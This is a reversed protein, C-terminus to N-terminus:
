RKEPPNCWVCPTLRAYPEASLEAYTIATLPWLEKRASYCTEKKHYAKGGDPNYYVLTGEPVAPITRGPWDEWVVLKTDKKYHEWVWTMNVGEPTRKRQVRICGHSARQGLVKEFDDYDKGSAYQIYPVQHIMDGDNFRIGKECTMNGSPFDGVKSVMLFEGSRTENYPQKENALGTSVRLESLLKGESFIYLRQTLKDVVLGMGPDPTVTELRGTEVYGRLLANWTKTASDHFASSYTEVLTWGNEDTGLVHVSQSDCTIEGIAAGGPADRLPYQEKQNGSIVTVPAMLMAWVAEERTIDMPTTWYCSEHGCGEERSPTYAAEALVEAPLCLTALLLWIAGFALTGRRM